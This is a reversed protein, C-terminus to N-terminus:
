PELNCNHIGTCTWRYAFAWHYGDGAADLLDWRHTRLNYQTTQTWFDTYKSSYSWWGLWEGPFVPDTFKTNSSIQLRVRIVTGAFPAVNIFSTKTKYQAYAGNGWMNPHCGRTDAISSYCTGSYWPGDAETLASTVTTTGDTSPASMGPSYGAQADIDADAAEAAQHRQYADVLAQPPEAGALRRYVDLVSTEGAQPAALVQKDAATPRRESVVLVGPQPEYFSVIHGPRAEVRTVLHNLQDLGSRLQAFASALAASTPNARQRQDLLEFSAAAEEHTTPALNVDQVEDGDCAAGAISMLVPAILLCRSLRQSKM